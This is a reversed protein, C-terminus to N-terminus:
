FYLKSLNKHANIDLANLRGTTDELNTATKPSCVPGFM